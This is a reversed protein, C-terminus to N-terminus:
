RCVGTKRAEYSQEFPAGDLVGQTEIRVLRPTEVTIQTRGLGRGPCTYRVTASRADQVLVFQDCALGAHEIQIFSNPGSFCLKRDGDRPSKLQWEGREIQALPSPASQRQATAVGGVALLLLAGAAAPRVLRRFMM